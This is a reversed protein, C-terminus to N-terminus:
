KDGLKVLENVTTFWERLVYEIIWYEIKPAIQNYKSPENTLHSILNRINNCIPERHNHYGFGEAM